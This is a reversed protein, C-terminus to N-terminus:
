SSNLKAFNRKREYPHLLRGRDVEAEALYENALRGRAEEIEKSRLRAARRFSKAGSAIWRATLREAPKCTGRPLFTAPFARVCREILAGIIWNIPSNIWIWNRWRQEEDVGLTDVGLTVASAATSSANRHLIWSDTALRAM